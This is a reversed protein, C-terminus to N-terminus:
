EGDMICIWISNVLFFKEKSLSFTNDGSSYVEVADFIKQFFLASRELNKVIFTMHSIGFVLIIVRKNDKNSVCGNYCLVAYM